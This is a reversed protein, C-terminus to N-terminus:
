FRPDALKEHHTIASIPFREENEATIDLKLSVFPTKQLSM